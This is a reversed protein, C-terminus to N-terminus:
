VHQVPHRSIHLVNFLANLTLDCFIHLKMKSAKIALTNSNRMNSFSGQLALKFVHM